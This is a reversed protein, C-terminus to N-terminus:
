KRVYLLTSASKTVGGDTYTASVRVDASKRALSKFCSGVMTGAPNDGSVVVASLSALATADRTTGDSYTAMVAFAQGLGAKLLRNQPSVTVATLVLRQVVFIRVTATGSLVKADGAAYTFSDAGYYGAAPAYVFGGDAALNLTGHSPPSLLIATVADGDPDFDNILVGAAAVTLTADQNTSYSDDLAVPPNNASTVVITVTAPESSALGDTARYTFTATGSWAGPSYTFSGDAHLDLNGAGPPAVLSAALADGDADTDNALVGPAPISLTQGEVMSYSDAYASPPANVRVSVVESASLPPVGNDTVRVTFTHPGPWQAATPTWSFQGTSPDLSAGAPAGEISYTLVQDAEANHGVATFALMSGYTVVRDGIPELTPADNVPLVAIEVTATETGNHGDDAEYVFSDSGYYDPDPVYTFSGDTNLTLVGHSPGAVLWAVLGYGLPHTDNALVGPAAITLNSDEDVSYADDVADPPVVAPYRLTYFDTETGGSSYAGNYSTGSVTCAGEATVAIGVPTDDGGNNYRAVWLQNGDAGYKITAYDTTYEYGNEPNFWLTSSGTVYVCGAADLGVAVARDHGRAPGDYTRAWAVAGDPTVKVTLFDAGTVGVDYNTEGTLYTAGDPGVVMANAYEAGSEPAPGHAYDVEWIRAGTEPNLKLVTFDAQGGGAHGGVLLNGDPGLGIGCALDTATYPYRWQYHDLFAYNGEADYRFTYWDYDPLGEPCASCTIFLRESPDAVAYPYRTYTSYKQWRLWEENGDADCKLTWLSGGDSGVFYVGSPVPVIAIRSWTTQPLDPRRVRWLVHGDPAYKVIGLYGQYISDVTSTAGAVYINGTADVVIGRPSHNDYYVTRNWSERAVWARTGSPSYKITLYDWGDGAWSDGTVYTNGDSDSAIARATDWKGGTGNYRDAWEAPPQCQGPPALGLFLAFVVSRPIVVSPKWAVM